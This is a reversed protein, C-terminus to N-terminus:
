LKIVSTKNFGILAVSEGNPSWKGNIVKMGRPSEFLEVKKTPHWEVIIPSESFILLHTKKPEWAIGSISNKLLINDVCDDILDWIWLTSPYVQHRIALYKGCPSFSLIDITAISMDFNKPEIDIPIGIPRDLIEDLTYKIHHDPMVNNSIYNSWDRRTIDIERYVKGLYNSSEHIVPKCHLQLIISWTVHNILVVTENYGAIALLQGTPSWVVKEIGRLPKDITCDGCESGLFNYNISPYENASFAGIHTDTTMSYILIRSKEIASCWIGLLQGNPSWSIGDISFLKDCILKRTLKWDKSKYIEIKDTSESRTIVALRNRLHNIALYKGSSKINWIHTITQEDLTIISLYINLDSVIIISKCDPAWIVKEIGGSGEKLKFNFQKRKTTFIRIIGKKINVCLIYQDNPCWEICEIPDSFDFLQYNELTSTYKISLENQLVSAFYKGSPSFACINKNIRFM